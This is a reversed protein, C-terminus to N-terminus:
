DDDHQSQQATMTCQELSALDDSWKHCSSEYVSAFADPDFALHDSAFSRVQTSFRKALSLDVVEGSARCIVFHEKADALTQLSHTGCGSPPNRTSPHSNPNCMM